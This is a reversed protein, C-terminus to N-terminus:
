DWAPQSNRRPPRQPLEHCGRLCLPHAIATRDLLPQRDAYARLLISQPLYNTGSAEHWPGPRCRARCGKASRQLNNRAYATARQETDGFDLAVETRFREQLWETTLSRYWFPPKIWSGAGKLLNHAMTRAADSVGLEGVDPDVLARVNAPHLCCVGAVERAASGLFLRVAWAALNYVRRLIARRETATIIEAIVCDLALM